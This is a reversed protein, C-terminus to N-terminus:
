NDCKGPNASCWRSVAASDWGRAKNVSVCQEYTCTRAKSERSSKQQGFAPGSAVLGLIIALYCCAHIDGSSFSAVEELGAAVKGVISVWIRNGIFALVDTSAVLVQRVCSRLYAAETENRSNDIFARVNPKNAKDTETAEADACVTM